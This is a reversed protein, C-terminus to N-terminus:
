DYKRWGVKAGVMRDQNWMAWGKPNSERDPETNDWTPAEGAHLGNTQGSPKGAMEWAGREKEATFLDIQSRWAQSKLWSGIREADNVTMKQSILQKAKACQKSKVAESLDNVDSGIARCFSALFEFPKEQHNTPSSHSDFFSGDYNDGEEDGKDGQINIGSEAAVLHRTERSSTATNEPSQDGSERSSVDVDHDIIWQDIAEENVSWYLRYPNGERKTEIWGLEEMKKRATLQVENSLGTEWHLQERSRYGWGDKGQWRCLEPLLMAVAGGFERAIVKNVMLYGGRQLSGFVGRKVSM